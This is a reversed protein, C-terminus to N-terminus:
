EEKEIFAGTGYVEYKDLFINDFVERCPVDKRITLKKNYVRFTTQTAPLNREYAVYYPEIEDVKLGWNKLFYFLSMVSICHVSATSFVGTRAGSDDSCFVDVEGPHIIELAQLLVLLKVEGLGKGKGYAEDCAYLKHLFKTRGVTESFGSLSFFNDQYRTPSFADCSIKLLQVYKSINGEGYLSSLIDLIDEDSYVCIIGAEIKDRTWKYAGCFDHNQIEELTKSHCVYQYKSYQMLLDILHHESDKQSMITKVTFDTDLLAIKQKDM